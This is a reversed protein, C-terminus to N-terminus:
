FQYNSESYQYVPTLFFAKKPLRYDLHNKAETFPLMIKEALRCLIRGALWLIETRWPFSEPEQWEFYGV